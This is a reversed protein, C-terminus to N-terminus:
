QKQKSTKMRYTFLLVSLVMFILAYCIGAVAIGGVPYDTFASTMSVQSPYFAPLWEIIMKNQSAAYYIPNQLWAVDVNALLVILLIGELERKLFSGILLGYSGYVFGCLIYGATMAVFHKTEFLALGILSIFIGVLAILLLTISLKAVVLEQTRFGALILRKNVLTNRQMLNLALFAAIAGSAALGMFVFMMDQQIVTIVSEQDATALQFSINKGPITLYAILYFVSPLLLMLLLIVRNRMLDIWTYRVATLLYKLRM